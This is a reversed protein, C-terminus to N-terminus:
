RSKRISPGLLGRWQIISLDDVTVQDMAPATVRVQVATVPVTELVMEGTREPVAMVQATAPETVGMTEAEVTAAEPWFLFAMTPIPTAATVPAMAPATEPVQAGGPGNGGHALIFLHDPSMNANDSSWAPASLLGVAMVVCGIKIIKKLM